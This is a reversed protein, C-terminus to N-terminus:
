NKRGSDLDSDIVQLYKNLLHHDSGVTPLKGQISGTTSINQGLQTLGVIEIANEYIRENVISEYEAGCWRYLKLSAFKDRIM